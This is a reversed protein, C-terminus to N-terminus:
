SQLFGMGQAQEEVQKNLQIQTEAYEILFTGYDDINKKFEGFQNASKQFQALIAKGGESQVSSNIVNQMKQEVEQLTTLMKNGHQQIQRGQEQVKEPNIKDLAM